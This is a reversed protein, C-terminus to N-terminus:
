MWDVGGIRAQGDMNLSQDADVGPYSVGIAFDESVVGIRKTGIAPKLVGGGNGFHLLVIERHIFGYAEGKEEEEERGGDKGDVQGGLIFLEASTGADANAFVDRQHFHALQDRFQDKTEVDGEDVRRPFPGGAGVPKDSRLIKGDSDACPGLRHSNSDTALLPFLFAPNRNNKKEKKEDPIQFIAVLVRVPPFIPPYNLLLRAVNM